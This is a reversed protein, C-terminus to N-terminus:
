IRLKSVTVVGTLVLRHSADKAKFHLLNLDATGTEDMESYAVAEDAPTENVACLGEDAENM